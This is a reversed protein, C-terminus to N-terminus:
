MKMSHVTITLAVRNPGVIAGFSHNSGRIWDEPEYPSNQQSGDVNIVGYEFDNKVTIDAINSLFIATLTMNNLPTFNSSIAGGDSWSDWNYEVNNLTQPTTTSRSHSTGKEMSFVQQSGYPTGDVSFSINAPSTNVTVQVEPITYTVWVEIKKSEYYHNNHSEDDLQLKLGFWNNSLRNQMDSIIDGSTFEKDFALDFTHYIHTFDNFVNEAFTFYDKVTLGYLSITHNESDNGYDYDQVEIKIRISNITAYDSIDSLDYYFFSRYFKGSRQGIRLDRHSPVGHNEQVFDYQWFGDVQHYKILGYDDYIIALKQTHQGAQLLGSLCIMLIFLVRLSFKRILM